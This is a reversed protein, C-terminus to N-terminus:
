ARGSHLEGGFAYIQDFAGDMDTDGIADSVNLRGLNGNQKLTAAGPFATPDLRESSASLRVLKRRPV